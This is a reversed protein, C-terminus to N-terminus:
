YRPGSGQPASPMNPYMPEPAPPPAVPAPVPPDVVITTTERLLGGGSVSGSITTDRGSMRKICDARDADPLANCRVQANKQYVAADDDKLKGHRAESMAAGVDRLCTKRDQTSKGELCAARDQQYTSSTKDAAGASVSLVSLNLAFLSLSLVKYVTNKKTQM